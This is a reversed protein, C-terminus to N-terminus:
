RIQHSRLQTAFIVAVKDLTFKQCCSITFSNDQGLAGLCFNSSAAVARIEVYEASQQNSIASQQNSIASQQNSFSACTFGVFTFRLGLKKEFVYPQM